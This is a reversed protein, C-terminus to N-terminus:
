APRVCRTARAFDPSCTVSQRVPRHSSAYSPIYVTRAQFKARDNNVQVSRSERLTSA